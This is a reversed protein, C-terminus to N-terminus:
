DVPAIEGLPILIEDAPTYRDANIDLIHDLVDGGGEGALNFYTHNTLNVITPRDTTASYDIRFTADDADVAYRVTAALAGPYGGDGDPSTHRLVASRGDAAMTVSWLAKDFGRAGGHVSSRGDTPALQYAVGDLMFRAGAIRNAYRGVIAGLYIRDGAYDAPDPLGLVINGFHGRRDPVEIATVIGGQSIFRVVLGRGGSLTHVPTTEINGQKQTHEREEM